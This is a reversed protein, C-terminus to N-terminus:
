ESHKDVSKFILTFLHLYHSSPQLMKSLFCKWSFFTVVPVEKSSTSIIEDEIKKSPSVGSDVDGIPPHTDRWAYIKAVCLMTPLRKWQHYKFSTLMSTFIILHHCSHHLFTRFESPQDVLADDDLWHLVTSRPLHHQRLHPRAPTQASADGCQRFM